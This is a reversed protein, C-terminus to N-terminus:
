PKAEKKPEMARLLADAQRRTREEAVIRKGDAELRDLQELPSLASFRRPDLGDDNLAVPLTGTNTSM